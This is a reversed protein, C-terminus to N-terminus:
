KREGTERRPSDALGSEVAGLSLCYPETKSRLVYNEILPIRVVRMKRTGRPPHSLRLYLGHVLQFARGNQKLLSRFVGKVRETKSRGRYRDTCVNCWTGVFNSFAKLFRIRDNEGRAIEESVMFDNFHHFVDNIVFWDLLNNEALLSAEGQSSGVQRVYGIPEMVRVKGEFLLLVLLLIENLIVDRFEYRYIAELRRVTEGTRSICYWNQWHDYHVLENFYAEIREIGSENEISRGEHHVARYSEGVPANMVEGSKSVLSFRAIAARCGSYDSNCELFDILLPIKDIIYFDDNDAFLLYETEVRKCVDLQKAYFDKWDNDYPYRVYEYNLNRYNSPDRLQAEIEKDAGGDAILIKYPCRQDNMFGMWRRTFEPRDKLTLVITLGHM